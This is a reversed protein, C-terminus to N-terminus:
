AGVGANGMPKTTMLVKRLAIGYQNKLGRFDGPYHGQM